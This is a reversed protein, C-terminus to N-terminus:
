GADSIVGAFDWEVALWKKFNTKKGRRYKRRLSRM